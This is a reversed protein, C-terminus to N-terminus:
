NSLLDHHDAALYDFYQTNKPAPITGVPHDLYWEAPTSPLHPAHPGLYAFFPKGSGKISKLWELTKNGILSTTYDEPKDGTRTLKGDDSWSNNYFNHNCM